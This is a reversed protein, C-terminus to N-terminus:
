NNEAEWQRQWEDQMDDKLALHIDGWSGPNSAFLARLIEVEHGEDVSVNVVADDGEAAWGESVLYNYLAGMDPNSLSVAGAGAVVVKGWIWQGTTVAVASATVVGTAITQGKASGDVTSTAQVFAWTDNFDAAAYDVVMLSPRDAEEQGSETSDGGWGIPGTKQPNRADRSWDTDKPDPIQSAIGIGPWCSAANMGSQTQSGSSDGGDAPAIIHSAPLNAM